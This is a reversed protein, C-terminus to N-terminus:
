AIRRMKLTKKAVGVFDDIFKEALDVEEGLQKKVYDQAVSKVSAEAAQYVAYSLGGFAVVNAVGFVGAYIFLQRRVCRQIFEKEEAGRLPHNSGSREPVPPNPLGNSM